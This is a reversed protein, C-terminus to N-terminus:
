SARQFGLNNEKFIQMFKTHSIENNEIVRSKFENPSFNTLNKFCENFRQQCSFGLLGSIEKFNFGPNDMLSIAHLIKLSMLLKKPGILDNKRFEKSLYILSIGIEEAIEQVSNFYIYNNKIINLAKKLVQSNSGNQFGLKDFDFMIPNMQIAEKIYTPLESLDQTSVVKKVGLEGCKRAQELQDTKLICLIPIKPFQNIIPSFYKQFMYINNNVFTIICDILSQRLIFNVNRIKTTKTLTFNSDLTSEILSCDNSDDFVLCKIKYPNESMKSLTWKIEYRSYFLSQAKLTL